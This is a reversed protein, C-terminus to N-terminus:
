SSATTAGPQPSQSICARDLREIEALALACAKVLDRRATSPKWWQEDWPWALSVLLAATGDNPASSGALAYCAAARAMQGDAHEDDHEPTWGEATIQRRREAQVDLWAQPVSNGPAAAILKEIRAAVSNRLEWAASDDVECAPLVIKITPLHSKADAFRFQRDLVDFGLEILWGDPVSHQAQTLVDASIARLFNQIARMDEESPENRLYLVVARPHEADRGIGSIEPVSHQAQAVPAAYLKPAQGFDPMAYLECNDIKRGTMWRLEGDAAVAMHQLNIPEQKELEALKANADMLLACYNHSMTKLEAVRALAADRQQEVRNFMEAWRAVSAAHQAVTMLEDNANLPGCQGLVVPNSHVVRAVVEPQEAEAQEPRLADAPAENFAEAHPALNLPDLQERFAQLREIREAEKEPTSEFEYLRQAAEVVLRSSVGASFRVGGVKAPQELKPWHNFARRALTIDCVAAPVPQGDEGELENALWEEFSAEYQSQSPQALAARFQWAEWAWQTQPMYLDPRLPQRDMPLHTAWAEFAAREDGGAQEVPAPPDRLPTGALGKAALYNTARAVLNSEPAHRKLSAALMRVLMALEQTRQGEARGIDYFPRLWHDEAPPQSAQAGFALAGTIADAIVQRQDIASQAPMDNGHANCIAAMNRLSDLLEGKSPNMGIDHGIAEWAELVTVVESRFGAYWLQVADEKALPYSLGAAILQDESPPAQDKIMALLSEASSHVEDLDTSWRHPSRHQTSDHINDLAEVIGRLRTACQEILQHQTSSM